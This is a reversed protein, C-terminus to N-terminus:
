VDSKLKQEAGDIEAVFLRLSLVLMFLQIVAKGMVVATVTTVWNDSCFGHFKVEPDAGEANLEVSEVTFYNGYYGSCGLGTMKMKMDIIGSEWSKVNDESLLGLPVFVGSTGYAGITALLNFLQLVMIGAIIWKKGKVQGMFFVTVAVFASYLAFKWVPSFVVLMALLTQALCLWLLPPKVDLLKVQRLMIIFVGLLFVLSCIPIIFVLVGM